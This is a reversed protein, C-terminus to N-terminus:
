KNKEFHGIYAEYLEMDIPQEGVPTFENELTRIWNFKCNEAVKVSALNDKHSIIQLTELGLTTFAYNLLAKVAKSTLGQGENAYGICYAFEGQKKEWDLEKIGIIGVLERNNSNKLTFIFEQKQQFEKVKKEVYLQSLTPNLNQALTSPFYRKLRESNSVVLDCIKWADGSHIKSVEFGDFQAIM